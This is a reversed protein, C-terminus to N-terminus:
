SVPKISTDALYTVTTEVHDRSVSPRPALAAEAIM